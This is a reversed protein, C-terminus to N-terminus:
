AWLNVEGRSSGERAGPLPVQAYFESKGGPLTCALQTFRCNEPDGLLPCFNLAVRDPGTEMTLEFHLHPGTSYGSNGSNAIKQGKTVQDGVGIWYPKSELHGYYTYYNKGSFAHRLILYHGFGDPEFGIKEVVGDAAAYIPTGVELPIDIGRHCKCGEGTDRFVIGSSIEHNEAPWGIDIFDTLPEGCVSSSGIDGKRFTSSGGPWSVEMRYSDYVSALSRNVNNKMVESEYDSVSLRGFYDIYDMDSKRANLISVIENGRSSVDLSVGINQEVSYVWQIKFVNILVYVSFFGLVAIM